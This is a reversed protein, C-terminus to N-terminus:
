GMVVKGDREISWGDPSPNSDAFRPLGGTSGTYPRPPYIVPQVTSSTFTSIPSPLTTPYQAGDVPYAVTTTTTDYATALVDAAALITAVDTSDLPLQGKAYWQDFAAELLNEQVVIGPFLIDVAAQINYNGANPTIRHDETVYNDLGDETVYIWEDDSIYTSGIETAM